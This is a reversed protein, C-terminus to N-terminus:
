ESIIRIKNKLKHALAIGKELDQNLITFHGMKRNPKTMKKGYIHVYVNEYSLLEDIGEVITKGTYGKEGLLNVMVAPSTMDTNGLPYGSLIRILQQYQSTQTNEITHHGSNHPRPAVENVWLNDDDDIFFEVALLGVIGMKDAIDYAIDIASQRLVTNIQAPCVLIDLLNAIPDFVMEVPEYHTSKGNHTRAIIVAIEKKIKIKRQVISPADLLKSLEKDSNIIAIGKGDYGFTRSKQVFPFALSDNDIAEIVEKKNNFLRSKPVNFEHKQYFESQLWKDKILDLTDPDPYTKVGLLACARIADTDVHEIEISLVDKNKGFNYVDQYTTYDGEKFNSTSKYAPADKSKDMFHIHSDWSAAAMSMMKGLQGGGLIGINYKKQM